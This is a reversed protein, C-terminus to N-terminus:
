NKGALSEILQQIPGTRSIDYYLVVCMVGILFVFGVMTLREKLRVSFERRTIGELLLFFIHGGDLAPIPLLNILGIDFSITGIFLLFTSLSQTRAVNSLKAIEIPGSAARLSLKGTFLRSLFVGTLEVHEKCRSFSERIAARLPLKVLVSHEIPAFGIVWRTREPDEKKVPTIVLTQRVAQGNANREIELTLPKGLSGQVLSPVIETGRVPQSNISLLKDGKRLGAKEAPM